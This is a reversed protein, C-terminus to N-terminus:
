ATKLAGAVQGDLPCQCALKVAENMSWVLCVLVTMNGQRLHRSRRHPPLQLSGRSRLDRWVPGPVAAEGTPDCTPINTRSWDNRRCFDAGPVIRPEDAALEAAVRRVRTVAPPARGPVL